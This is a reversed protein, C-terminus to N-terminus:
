AFWVGPDGGQAEKSWAWLAVTAAVLPSIDSSSTKRSWAWADGLPRRGAGALAANLPAQDRHILGGDSVADYLAGCAQAADRASLLLPEIGAAALQPLLSGAPGAPDLAVAAPNWRESLEVLRDVLWSTGQRHDVVELVPRGDPSGGCTAICAWTRDPTVDVAFTVPDMPRAEADAVASWAEPAIVQERFDDVRQCLVETRFVHEPDTELASRIADVSITHGLSPNAAAWAEVDDLACDKEASWEFLGLTSSPDELSALGLDHLHNLVTSANDGANSLAVIQPRPRAMTTKTVAGWADWTQHERIEDLVVLDGSLGRGGRRSAAAVKYREGTTLRLAKKGNTRDVAAIEARLEPVGEAMDVAGTWAEEAVDLNQATGIVLGAGDVFMRWLALAQMWTTKGNQRAIMVLVTRFRFAGADDLELAHVFLWRQWPLLDIGLVNEAFDVAGFGASTDPTLPRRPPTWLRPSEHGVLRSPLTAVSM